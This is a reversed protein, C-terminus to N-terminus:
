CVEVAVRQSIGCLLEYPIAGATAAVAEVPLGPGWLVVPEGVQIVPDLDTADIALMDMSVRGALPVRRGRALVTADAGVSRPYGDGYGIAAIALTTPRAAVWAGGYGVRAGPPIRKVAIVQSRLTMAPRLGHDEGVAGRMPSAGYLLLGPRVWDALAGPVNLLAASNAISREGSIGRTAAEFRELQMATAANGPEDASALHTFSHVPGRLAALAGLAARAAAVGVPDFGLRNMGTDVKLWVKFSAPAAGRLLEIQEASHVVLDFRFAAAADRQDADFVGELLVIPQEIGARRLALGEEVRAVAFADAQALARAVPVLGHGYANAKVVAMVRSGKARARVLRLNHRLAATDITASAM